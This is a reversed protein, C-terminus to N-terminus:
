NNSHEPHFPACEPLLFLEWWSWPAEDANPAIVCQRTARSVPICEGHTLRVNLSKPCSTITACARL